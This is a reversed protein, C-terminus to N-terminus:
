VSLLTDFLIANSKSQFHPNILMSVFENSAYGLIGKILALPLNTHSKM